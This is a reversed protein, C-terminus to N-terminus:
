SLRGKLDHVLRRLEKELGVPNKNSTGAVSVRVKDKEKSVRVWFRRHSTFFVAIFGITMALFGTYVIPVGPDRNVQLGTYYRTTAGTLFFTYPEFASANLRPSKLMQPPFHEKLLDPYQFVWFRVEEGKEPAVSILVAPGMRGNLNEHFDLIRFRGEKGPLDMDTGVDANLAIEELNEGQKRSIKLGVKDPITGYSSQYFKIGQFNVPHNVLASAEKVEAGDVIFRLDSRFEKPAGSDYFEVFFKDCMIEFKLDQPLVGKRLFVKNISRKEGEPINVFAEFGFFSGVLGGILIMLVSFHVLYVGFISSRGKEGYFSLKDQSESDRNKRFRSALIESIKGGADALQAKVMFSRDEPLDEFPKNRDPKPQSRFRKLTAPFRDISCVLLNLTLAALLVRFWISHYMDFLGLSSYLKFTWPSLERAFELAGQGQQPILTGLISLAALIILLSVTLKVSSFFGWLVNSKRDKKEKGM